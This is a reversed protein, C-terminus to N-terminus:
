PFTKELAVEPYGVPIYNPPFESRLHASHFIVQRNIPYCGLHADKYKELNERATKSFDVASAVSMFSLFILISLLHKM